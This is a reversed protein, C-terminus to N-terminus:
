NFADPIIKKLIEIRQLINNTEIEIENNGPNKQIMSRLYLSASFIGLSDYKKYNRSTSGEIRIPITFYPLLDEHNKSIPMWFCLVPTIKRSNKIEEPQNKMELLVKSLSTSKKDIFNYIRNSEDGSEEWIKNFIGLAKQYVGDFPNSPDFDNFSVGNLSHASWNKIEVHYGVDGNETKELIYRDLWKGSKFGERPTSEDFIIIENRFNSNKQLFHKFLGAVLDEGILGTIASAPKKDSERQDYFKILEPINFKIKGM